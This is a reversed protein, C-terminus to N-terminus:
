DGFVDAPTVELGLEPISLAAVEVLGADCTYMRRQHPDLLWVHHVGWARYEDLKARAESMRDDPSLIEIAIFPPTAPVLEKPDQPHFVCLDPILYVRDRIKLRLEPYAWLKQSRKSIFYAALLLQTLSHLRDPLSREVIEGDRYEKDLGDFATHLYEEVTMATKAGM